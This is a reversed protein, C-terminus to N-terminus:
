SLTHVTHDWKYLIRSFVLSLSLFYILTLPLPPLSVFSYSFSKSTTSVITIKMTIITDCHINLNFTILNYLKLVDTYRLSVTCLDDQFSVPIAFHYFTVNGLPWCSCFAGDVGPAPPICSFYPECVGHEKAVLIFPTGVLVAKKIVM